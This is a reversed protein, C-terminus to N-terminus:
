VVKLDGKFMKQEGLRRRQLGLSVRGGSYVWKGFECAAGTYDGGNLKKLLTSSCFAGVGVNYTFSTLADFQGQSLAVRVLRNVASEYVKLDEDLFRESAEKTIRDGERVGNTHGYGITLKNSSCRYASLRLGECNKIFKKGEESTKLM